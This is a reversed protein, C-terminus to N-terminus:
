NVAYYGTGDCVLTKWSGSTVTVTEGSAGGFILSREGTTRNAAILQYGRTLPLRVEHDDTLAGVFGLTWARLQEDSPTTPTASDAVTVSEYGSPRFLTADLFTDSM